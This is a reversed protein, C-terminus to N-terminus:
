IGRNTDESKYRERNLKSYEANLKDFYRLGKDSALLCIYLVDIDEIESDSARTVFERPNIKGRFYMEWAFKSQEARIRRHWVSDVLSGIEALESFADDILRLEQEESEEIFIGPTIFGRRFKEWAPLYFIAERVQYGVMEPDVLVDVM